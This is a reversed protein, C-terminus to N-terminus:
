EVILLWHLRGLADGADLRGPTLREGRFRDLQLEQWLTLALWRAGWQRPRELRLESLKPRVM